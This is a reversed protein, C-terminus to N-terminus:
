RRSNLSAASSGDKWRFGGTGDFCRLETDTFGAAPWNASNKDGEINALAPCTEGSFFLEIKVYPPPLPSSTGLSEIYKKEVSKNFLYQSLENKLYRGNFMGSLALHIAELITSKGAENNGVLINIGKNLDLLFRGEYCKFNEIILKAIHM